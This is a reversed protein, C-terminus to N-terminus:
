RVLNRGATKAEYLRRDARELLSAASSRAAGDARPTRVAACRRARSPKWVGCCRTPPTVSGITSAAIEAFHDCLEDGTMRMLASADLAVLAAMMRNCCCVRDDALLLAGVDMKELVASLFPLAADLRTM